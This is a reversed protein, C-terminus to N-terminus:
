EAILDDLNDDNGAGFVPTSDPGVEVMEHFQVEDKTGIKYKKGALFESGADDVPMGHKNKLDGAQDKSDSVQTKMEQEAQYMWWPKFVLLLDLKTVCGLIPDIDDVLEPLSAASVIWWRRPIDLTRIADIRDKKREIWRFAFQYTDTLKQAAEPLKFPDESLSYDLAENEDVTKWKSDEAHIRQFIAAEEATLNEPKTIKEPITKEPTSENSKM